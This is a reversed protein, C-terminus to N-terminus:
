SSNKPEPSELLVYNDGRKYSAVKIDGVSIGFDRAVLKESCSLLISMSEVENLSTLKSLESVNPTFRVTSIFYGPFGSRPIAKVELTCVIEAKKNEQNPYYFLGVVKKEM